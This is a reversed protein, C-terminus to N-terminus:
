LSADVNRMFVLSKGPQKQPINPVQNNFQNFQQQQQNQLLGGHPQEFRTQQGGQGFGGQQVQPQQQFHVQQQQVTM